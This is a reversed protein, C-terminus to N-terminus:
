GRYSGSASVLVRGPGRPPYRTLPIGVAIETGPQQRFPSAIEGTPRSSAGDLWLSTRMFGSIGETTPKPPPKKVANNASGDRGHDDAVTDQAARLSLRRYISRREQPTNCGVRPTRNHRSWLCPRRRSWDCANKLLVLPKDGRGVIRPCAFM